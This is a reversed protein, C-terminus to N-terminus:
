RLALERVMEATTGATALREGASVRAFEPATDSVMLPLSKTGPAITLQFPEAREVVKTLVECSVTEMGATSKAATPKASTVMKLGPGPPPVDAAKLNAM